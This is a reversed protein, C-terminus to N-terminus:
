NSPACCLDFRPSVKFPVLQAVLERGVGDEAAGAAGSPAVINGISVATLVTPPTTSQPVLAVAGRAWRALM